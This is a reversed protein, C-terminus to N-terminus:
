RTAFPSADTEGHTVRAVQGGIYKHPAKSKASKPAATTKGKRVSHCPSVPSAAAVGNGVALEYFSFEDSWHFNISFIGAKSSREGFNQMIKGGSKRNVRDFPRTNVSFQFVCKTARSHFVNLWGKQALFHSLTSKEHWNADFPFSNRDIWFARKILRTGSPLVDLFMEICCTLLFFIFNGGNFYIWKSLSIIKSHYYRRASDYENQETLKEDIRRALANTLPLACYKIRKWVRLINASLFEAAIWKRHAFLAENMGEM